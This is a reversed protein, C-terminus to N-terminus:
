DLCLYLAPGCLRVNWLEVIGNTFRRTEARVSCASGRTPKLHLAPASAPLPQVYFLFAPRGNWGTQRHSPLPWMSAGQSKMCLSTIICVHNDVKRCPRILRRLPGGKISKKPWRCSWKTCFCIHSFGRVPGILVLSHWKPGSLTDNENLSHSVCVCVCLRPRHSTNHVLFEPHCLAPLLSAAYSHWNPFPTLFFFHYLSHSICPHTSYIVLFSLAPAPLFVLTYLASRWSSLTM